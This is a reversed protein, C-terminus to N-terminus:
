GRVVERVDVVYVQRAPGTSGDFCVQTGDRNWRPHLDCRWPGTYSPPSHFRNLDYRRGTAPRYLMLQQMRDARGPYTDNLIWQRDPSYSCHGDETLVGDGVLTLAGTEVDILFFTNGATPHRASFLLTRDDRWDFHSAYGTDLHLRRDSGDPKATYVRTQWPADGKRWRHLFVFRGASPNFLLHEIGHDCGAFRADPRHAALWALPVVLENAGTALDMRWIGLEKPAPDAAFSEDLACYGYGPRLRHTRAFDLTMAQKGDASVCYVPRPLTRTKNTTLDRIVAVYRGDSVSNYIVERDGAGLWQLMAGQQWSWALTTDFPHYRDGDALGVFGLTLPEGRTPQRDAFGVEMALLRRGAADWPTKDYYGFFHHAPGRTVARAPLRLEDPKGPVQSLLLASLVQRRDATV